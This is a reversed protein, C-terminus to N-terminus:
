QVQLYMPEMGGMRILTAALEARFDYRTLDKVLRTYALYANTECLGVM